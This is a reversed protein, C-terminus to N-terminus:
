GEAALQRAPLAFDPEFGPPAAALCVKNGGSQKVQLLAEDATKLLGEADLCFSPYESVGMSVTMAPLGRAELIPFKTSEIIRRIREAKNAAGLHDTHPLLVIMEDPGVRALIDNARATKKLVATLLKLLTDAQPVGVKQNLQRFGDLDLCIMSVPLSIRRSRTIEDDLQTRFHKRNSLGTLSDFIELSHKEKLISNRRYTLDFVQKYVKLIKEARESQPNEFVVFLGLVADDKLHAWAVFQDRRFVEVMMTKLQAISGPQLLLGQLESPNEKKLDFGIGRIKEIPLWMSQSVVLSLYHPLYKLYLIPSNGLEHSVSEMLLQITQDLENARSFRDLITELSNLDLSLDSGGLAIIKKAGDSEIKGFEHEGETAVQAPATVQNKANQLELMADKTQETEFQYYLREVARDVKLILDLPSLYPRILYDYCKQNEILQLAKTGQHAGIMILSLTEPTIEALKEMFEEATVEINEYTLLIIHPPLEKIAGLSSDFTPFFRADYGAMKLNDMSAQALRYDTDIVYILFESRLESIKM